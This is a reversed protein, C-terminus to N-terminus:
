IGLPKKIATGAKRPYEPPTSKEKKVFVFKREMDTGPLVTTFINEIRGGLIRVAKKGQKLEEEITGAKYAVFYGGPKVFPMCYESLGALGAVARSVAVDYRERFCEQRGGDEARSHVTEVQELSLVHIVEKLFKLRKNLSDLLTLRLEPFAIKLPIGPFGAGTGIDIVQLNKHFDMYKALLLSDIFHKHMVETKETIATLNMVRNWETLLDYYKKFQELQKEDLTVGIRAAKDKLEHM